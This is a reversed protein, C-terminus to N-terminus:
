LVLLECIRLCLRLYATCYICLQDDGITKAVHIVCDRKKNFGFNLAEIYGEESSSIFLTENKPPYLENKALM